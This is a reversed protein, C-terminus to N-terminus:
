IQFHYQLKALINFFNLKQISHHFFWKLSFNFLFFKSQHNQIKYLLYLKINQLHEFRLHHFCLVKQKNHFSLQFSLIRFM